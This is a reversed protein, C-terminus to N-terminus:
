TNRIFVASTYLRLAERAAMQEHRPPPKLRLSPVFYQPDACLLDHRGSWHCSWGAYSFACELDEFSVAHEPLDVSGELRFTYTSGSLPEVLGPVAGICGDDQTIAAADLWSAVFVAPGPAATTSIWAVLQALQEADFYNLCFMAAIHSPPRITRALAARSSQDAMNLAIGQWTHMPWHRESMRRRYEVLSATSTDTATWSPPRGDRMEARWKAIDGGSGGCMDLLSHVPLVSAAVHIAASKAWNNCARVASVFPGCRSRRERTAVVADYHAAARPESTPILPQRLGAAHCWQGDEDIWWAKDVDPEEGTVLLAEDRTDVRRRM